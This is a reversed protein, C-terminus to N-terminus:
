MVPPPPPQKNKNKNKMKTKKNPIQTYEQKKRIDRRSSPIDSYINSSDDTVNNSNRLYDSTSNLPITNNNTDSLITNNNNNSNDNTNDTDYQDFSKKKERRPRTSLSTPTTPISISGKKNSLSQQKRKQPNYSPLFDEDDEEFNNYLDDEADELEESQMRGGFSRRRNNNNSKKSNSNRSKSKNINKISPSSSNSGLSSRPRPQNSTRNPERNTTTTSNYDDRQDYYSEDEIDDENDDNYYIFDDNQKKTTSTNSGNTNSTDRSNYRTRSSNKLSSPDSDTTNPIMPSNYGLPTYTKQKKRQINQVPASGSGLLDNPSRLHPQNSPSKNFFSLLDVEEQRPENLDQTQPISQPQQHQQQLFANQLLALSPHLLSQPITSPATSSPPLQSFQSPPFSTPIVPPLYRPQQPQYQFSPNFSPQSSSNSANLIPQQSQPSFYQTNSQLSPGNYGYRGNLDSIPPPNAVQTSFTLPNYQQQGINSSIPPSVSSSPYPHNSLSNDNPPHNTNKSQENNLLFNVNM